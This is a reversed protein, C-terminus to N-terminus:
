VQVDCPDRMKDEPGTWENTTEYCRWGGKMLSKNEKGKRHRYTKGEPLLDAVALLGEYEHIRGRM